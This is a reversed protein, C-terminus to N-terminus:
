IGNSSNRVATGPTKQPSTSTSKLAATSKESTETSVARPWRELGLKKLALKDLGADKIGVWIFWWSLLVVMLFLAYQFIVLAWEAASASAFQSLDASFLVFMYTCLVLRCGIVGVFVLVVYNVTWLTQMQSRVQQQLLHAIFFWNTFEMAAFAVAGYLAATRGILYTLAAIWVIAHHICLPLNTAHREGKVCYLYYSWPITFTFYGLSWCLAVYGLINHHPHLPRQVRMEPDTIIAALLLPCLVVTHLLATTNQGWSMRSMEGMKNAYRPSLKPWFKPGAKYFGLFLLTSLPYVTYLPWADEWSM